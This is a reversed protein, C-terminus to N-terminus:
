TNNKKMKRYEKQYENLKEKNTEYYEKNYEKTKDKNTERYEKIKDKNTERYEKLTRGAICKNVCNNNRIYFGERQLLEEKTNCPFYEVLEIRASEYELIKFATCFGGQGNKYKKYNYRHKAMRVSLTEITSGYYEDDTEFSFIRYVKGNQYNPM